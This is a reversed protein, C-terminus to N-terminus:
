VRENFSQNTGRHNRKTIKGYGVARVNSNGKCPKAKLEM